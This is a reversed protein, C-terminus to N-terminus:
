LYDAMVYNAIDVGYESLRIRGEERVILAQREQKEIVDGYIGDIGVGFRRMFEEESIGETLRLGLFMFEAMQDQVTLLEEERRLSQSESECERVARKYEAFDAPNVFRRGQILSSAGLGLGLYDHGTWYGVNHRCERGELAYNSIEYRHYGFEALKAETYHYIGRDEEESPLDPLQGADYLTGFPTGEEIILSYASIHEPRWALIGDLTREWSEMTQGPLASMLDVNINDFGAERALEFINKAESATHIRGLMLLEKDNLSQVGVSLRNIGVRRFASLKEFNATGPNMEMSIEADPLVDYTDLITDMALHMMEGTMISPTGGGWFITDITYPESIEEARMRIESRLLEMYERQVEESAPGSNFDCYRCKRVCFPFHLYLSTPGSWHFLKLQETGKM